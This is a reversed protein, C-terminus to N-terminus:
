ILKGFLNRMRYEKFQSFWEFIFTLLVGDFLLDDGTKAINYKNDILTNKTPIIVMYPFDILRNEYIICGNDWTIPTMTDLLMLIEDKIPPLYKFIGLAFEEEHKVLYARAERLKKLEEEPLQYIENIKSFILDFHVYCYDTLSTFEFILEKYEDVTYSIKYQM